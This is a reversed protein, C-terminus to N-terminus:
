HSIEIASGITSWRDFNSTLTQTAREVHDSWGADEDGIEVGAWIQALEARDWWTQAEAAFESYDLLMPALWYWRDDTGSGTEPVIALKEILGRIRSAYQTRVEAASM